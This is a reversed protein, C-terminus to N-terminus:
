YFVKSFKTTEQNCVTCRMAGSVHQQQELKSVCEGCFSFHMCPVALHTREGSKCLVCSFDHTIPASAEPTQATSDEDPFQPDFDYTSTTINSVNVNSKARNDIRDTSCTRASTGTVASQADYVSPLYNQQTGQLSHQSNQYQLHGTSVNKLNSDQISNETSGNNPIGQVWNQLSKKNKLRDLSESPSIALIGTTNNWEKPNGAARWKEAERMRPFNGLKKSREQQHREIDRREIVKRREVEKSLEKDRRNLGLLNRNPEEIGTLPAMSLESQNRHLKLRDVRNSKLITDEKKRASIKDSSASGHGKNKKKVISQFKNKMKRFGKSGTSSNSMDVSTPTCSDGDVAAETLITRCSTSNARGRNIDVQLRDLEWQRKNQLKDGSAFNSVNPGDGDNLLWATAISEVESGFIDEESISFTFEPESSSLEKQFMKMSGINTDGLNRTSSFSTLDEIKGKRTARKIPSNANGVNQISANDISCASFPSSGKNSEDYSSELIDNDDDFNVAHIRGKLEAPLQRNVIKSRKSTAAIFTGGTTTMSVEVEEEDMFSDVDVPGSMSSETRRMQVPFSSSDKGMSNNRENRTQIRSPSVLKGNANVKGNGNTDDRTPTDLNVNRHFLGRGKRVPTNDVSQQGQSGKRPPSDSLKCYQLSHLNNDDDDDLDDDDEEDSSSADWDTKKVNRRKQKKLGDNKPHFLEAASGCSPANDAVSWEYLTNADITNDDYGQSMSIVSKSSLAAANVLPNMPGCVKAHKQKSEIKDSRKPGRQLRGLLKM